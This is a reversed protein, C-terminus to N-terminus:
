LRAENGEGKQGQVHKKNKTTEGEKRGGEARKRSHERSEKGSVMRIM